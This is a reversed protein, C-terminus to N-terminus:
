LKGRLRPDLSDRLADGIINFSVVTLLICIGPAVAALPHKFIYSYCESVMNGWSAMPIKIGIGLFSLTSELMITGGLSMSFLVIMSPFTNPLLHKFIIKLNSTGVLRAAVVYDSGKIQLILGYSMRAFTPLLGFGLAIIVGIIGGGSILSICITFIMPPISMQIDVYRMIITGITGEYYAALLGLIMGVFGGALCALVSCLLSIRAGYLLRAFLDRGYYDCGLLHEGDPDAFSKSLDMLYPDHQALVPALVACLILVFAIAVSIYVIAGRNFFTKLTYVGNHNSKRTM